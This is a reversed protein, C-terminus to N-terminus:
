PQRGLFAVLRETPSAVPAMPIEDDFGVGARLDPGVVARTIGLAREALEDDLEADVGLGRALDWGHVLVDFFIIDAAVTAPMALGNPLQTEGDLAGPVAYATLTAAVAKDYAGLPDDGAGKGGDGGTPPLKAATAHFGNIAGVVHELVARVDWDTCPTPRSLDDSGIRAVVARTSAFSRDIADLTDV